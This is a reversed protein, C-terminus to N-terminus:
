RSGLTLLYRPVQNLSNKLLTTGHSFVWFFIFLFILDTQDRGQFIKCNQKNLLVSYIPRLLSINLYQQATYTLSHHQLKTPSFDNHILMILSPKGSTQRIQTKFFSCLKISVNCAATGKIVSHGCIQCNGEEQFLYCM